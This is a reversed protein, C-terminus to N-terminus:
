RCEDEKYILEKLIGTGIKREARLKKFAADYGRQRIFRLRRAEKVLFRM